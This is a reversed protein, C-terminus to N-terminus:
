RSKPKLLAVAQSPKALGASVLGASLGSWASFGILSSFLGLGLSSIQAAIRAVKGNSAVIPQWWYGLADLEIYDIVELSAAEAWKKFVEQNVVQIHHPNPVKENIPVLALIVGDEACLKALARLCEPPDALHELVHSCFLIDFRSEKFLSAEFPNGSPPITELRLNRHGRSQLMGEVERVVVSDMEVGALQADLPCFRFFTGAGFGLDCFTKGSLSLQNRQLLALAAFVKCLRM